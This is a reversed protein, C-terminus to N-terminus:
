KEARVVVAQNSFTLYSACKCFGAAGLLEVLENASFFRYMGVDEKVRIAGVARLLDRAPELRAGEAGEDLFDRWIGSMDCHPKMSSLVIRGGPRLIRHFAKVVSAPEDLYSVLLNAVVADVSGDILWGLARTDGLEDKDNFNARLYAFGLAGFGRERQDALGAQSNMAEALGSSTLDVSLWVPPDGEHSAGRASAWARGAWLGLAGNGCGADVLIEGPCIPSILEVVLDLFSRYARANKLYEFKTLYESWFSTEDVGRNEVRQLREREIRNQKLMAAKNPALAQARQLKTGYSLNVSAIVLERFLRDAVVASERVEHLAGAIRRVKANPAAAAVAEVEKLDVWVDHEAQFFLAPVKLNRGDVLSGELDVMDSAIATEGFHDFDINCGLLDNVGHRKGDLHQEVLDERYVQLVTERFNVVGVVCILFSVRADQAAARLATRASLSSGILGASQVAMRQELFDLTALIDEVAGPLTFKLRDGDSEGIHCSHDFRIVNLGNVALFYALQLNNKKTESYKPALIVFPCSKFGVRRHDFFAAIKLGARNPYLLPESIVEGEDVANGRESKM